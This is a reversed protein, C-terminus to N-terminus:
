LACPPQAHVKKLHHISNGHPIGARGYIQEVELVCSVDKWYGDIRTFSCSVLLYRVNLTVVTRYKSV